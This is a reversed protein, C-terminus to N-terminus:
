YAGGLDGLIRRLDEESDVSGLLHLAQRRAEEVLGPPEERRFARVADWVTRYDLTWDQHLYGALLLSLAEGKNM